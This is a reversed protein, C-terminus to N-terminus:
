RRGRPYQKMKVCSPQGGRVGFAAAPRSSLRGHALRPVVELVQAARGAEGDVGRPADRIDDLRHVARDAPSGGDQAAREFRRHADEGPRDVVADAGHSRHHAPPDVEGERLERREDSLAGRSDQVFRDERHEIAYEAIVEELGSVRERDLHPEAVITLGEHELPLRKARGERVGSALQEDQHVAGATVIPVPRPTPVIVARRERAIQSVGRDVEVVVAAEVDRRVAARERRQEILEVALPRSGDVLHDDEGM